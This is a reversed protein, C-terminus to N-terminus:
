ELRSRAKLSEETDKESVFIYRNMYQIHKSHIFHIFYQKFWSRIIDIHHILLLM